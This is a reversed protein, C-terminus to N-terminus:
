YHYYEENYIVPNAEKSMIDLFIKAIKPEFQTGAGKEIIELAEEQKMAKRYPRDNTMADYADVVSIIRSLLPIKEGSLGKPYGKGNWWEHHCLIGDAIPVLELSSIAIRYGIEPHRKMEAWESDTLKGPKTLIYDRVGVKGIDHLSALLELKDLEVNSLGLRIGIEKSLAVLREAHKETEHSKEFMTAKISSVITNHVSNTELLKRQYMHEEATKFLQSVDQEVKDKTAYGLSVSHKHTEVNNEIDFRRLSTQINKMVAFATNSDTHPMIIGFEDGGTRALVDGPRCCAKIIKASEIILRDGEAHGYTDNVLKLGNIDGIIISLPLMNEKDLRKLETEYYRRNYLGTLYDHRSQFTLEEEAQKKSTIDIAFGLYRNEFIKVANITWWRISGDKHKYKFETSVHGTKLMLVYCSMVDELSEPACIDKINMKLLQAKSYGTIKTAANNVELYNGKEDSVFVAYPANEIYSSYKKESEKLAQETRMRTTDDSFTCAFQMPAPQYAMVRFYKDTAASYNEFSITEGTLAVKGYTEIWYSETNPFVELVTKGIIDKARVGVMMEFAPNVALFRYDIPTGKEDLIIEHLAFADVMENFLQEYKQIAKRESTIDQFTTYVMSPKDSNDDFIPIANISIWIHEKLKPQYVGLIYPGFPKGTRLAVMSPHEIGLLETGDEKITGWITDLSSMEIMQELSLGLIREAAPNASIIKGEPSQYVVGQAMTEFLQRYKKESTKLAMEALKLKTIDRLLCPIQKNGSHDYVFYGDVTVFLFDGSKSKLELEIQIQGNKELLSFNNNFEKKYSPHIFDEFMRGIVEQKLYGTTDLWQKNVDIINGNMDLSQYGIPAKSFMMRNREEFEKLRNQAFLFKNQHTLLLYFLVSLFPYLLFSLLAIENIGQVSSILMIAIMIASVVLGLCYASLWQLKKFRNHILVQWLYGMVASSLIISVELIANTGGQICIFISTTVFTILTSIPGFLLASVSILILSTDMYVGQSLEFPVLMIFICTFATLLGSVVQKLRAYRTNIHNNLQYIVAVVFLLAVNNILAIWNLLM